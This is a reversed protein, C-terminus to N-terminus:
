LKEIELSNDIHKKSLNISKHRYKVEVTNFSNKFNDELRSLLLQEKSLVVFDDGFIRFVLADPFYNELMSAFKKLFEDGSTWGNKKNFMSFDNLYFTNMYKYQKEYVNKALVLDLYSKNFADTLIDKYFYSFRKEEIETKPVQSINDDIVVDKLAVIAEKVIKPHFQKGSLTQLESLAEEVSKRPKYIRSTTMADFSDAVIIIRALPIIEDGAIKRPYGSGDYHEHHSYVIEALNEFMPINKLLKYGVVVHEKILNYEIENLQKPNLLVADPTAIKGIDHLMGAQYLKTCDEDCYGMKTAIMKSYTAVRKSHGATYTDRDEIMEVMSYLTKEYNKNQFRLLETVIATKKDISDELFSKYLRSEKLSQLRTVIKTLEYNLQKFDFPKIIYGDIGAKIANIMYDTEGHASTVLVIQEDNIERIKNLMDIGNLKPMSLDTIVIDYEKTKFLELGELGDDATDVKLFLKKLYKATSAQISKDDEVYLVRFNKSFKELEKIKSM